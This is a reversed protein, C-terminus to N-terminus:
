LALDRAVVDGEVTGEAPAGSEFLDINRRHLLFRAAAPDLFPRGRIRGNRFGDLFLGVFFSCLSLIGRGVAIFLSSMGRMVPRSSVPHPLCFWNTAGGGGSTSTWAGM